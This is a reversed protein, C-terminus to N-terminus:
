KPIPRNLAQKRRRPKGKPCVSICVGCLSIEKQLHEASRKRCTERCKFANFFEDRDMKPNWSKGNAAQAPCQEVCITCEGCASKVIPKGIKEFPYNTLVTALRLRPGFRKSILLDTKGIWGLGARTAAMKHSFSYRLHDRYDDGLESENVTALIPQNEIGRASLAGAIKATLESLRHNARMYLDYYEPTPANEIGDVIEDDLRTGIVAAYRFPYKDEILQGMDAFGILYREQDPLQGIVEEQVSNM